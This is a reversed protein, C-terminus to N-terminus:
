AGETNVPLEKLMTEIENMTLLGNYTSVENGYPYNKLGMETAHEVYTDMKMWYYNNGPEHDRGDSSSFYYDGKHKVIIGSYYYVGEEWEGRYNQATRCDGELLELKTDDYVDPDHLPKTKFAEDNFCEGVTTPVRVRFSHYVNDIDLRKSYPYFSLRMEWREQKRMLLIQGADLTEDANYNLTAWQMEQVAWNATDTKPSYDTWVDWNDTDTKPTPIEWEEWNTTDTEPNNNDPDNVDPASIDNKAIYGIAPTGFQVIDGAIYESRGDWTDKDNLPHRYGAKAIYGLIPYGYQVIEGAGYIKEADWEDKTSPPFVYDAKAIYGLVETYEDGYFVATNATYVKTYDWQNGQPYLRRRVMIGHVFVHENTCMLGGDTINPMALLDGVKITHLGGWYFLQTAVVDELWIGALTVYNDSWLGTYYWKQYEFVDTKYLSGVRVDFAMEGSARFYAYEGTHTRSDQGGDWIDIERTFDYATETIAEVIRSPHKFILKTLPYEGTEWFPGFPQQCGPVMQDECQPLLCPAYSFEEGMHIKSAVPTEGTIVKEDPVPAFMTTLFPDTSYASVKADFANKVWAGDIGCRIYGYLGEGQYYNEPFSLRKVDYQIFGWRVRCRVGSVMLAYREPDYVAIPLYRRNIPNASVKRREEIM